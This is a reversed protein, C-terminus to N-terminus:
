IVGLIMVANTGGFGFANSMVIKLDELTVDEEILKLRPLSEDYEGDYVHLPLAKQPNLLVDCCIAAEISASAGLCHGTLPKTSSCYVKDQFVSYVATAEMLDNTNTGTGHLNIYDVDQPEIKAECLAERIARITELGCPDPTAAHYADSTEGIGLIKIGSSEKEANELIFLAGGESINIGDRNKSFPNSKKDSLVELASFGFLTLKALSDVGGAIVADCINSKILNRALSFAKIGSTCATSVGAAFGTLGLYRQLFLAPNGMQTSLKNGVCGFEEIGANTTAIVIGIRNKGYKEIIDAVDQEIANLCHLLIKNCRLDYEPEIGVSCIEPLVTKDDINCLYAYKKIFVNVECAM